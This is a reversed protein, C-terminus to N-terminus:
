IIECIYEIREEILKHNVGLAKEIHNISRQLELALKLIELYKKDKPQSHQTDALMMRTEKVFQTAELQINSPVRQNVKGTNSIPTGDYSPKSLSSRNSREFMSQYRMGNILQQRSIKKKNFLKIIPNIKSAAINTNKMRFFRVESGQDKLQKILLPNLNNLSKPRKIEYSIENSFNDM